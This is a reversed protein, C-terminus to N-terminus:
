EPHTPYLERMQRSTSRDGRGTEIFLDCASAHGDVSISTIGPQMGICGCIGDSMHTISIIRGADATTDAEFVLRRRGDEAEVAMEHGHFSLRISRAAGRTEM